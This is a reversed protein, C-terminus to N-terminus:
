CALIDPAKEIGLILGTESFAIEVFDGQDVNLTLANNAALESLLSASLAFSRDDCTKLEWSDGIKAILATRKHHISMTIQSQALENKAAQYKQNISNRESQSSLQEREIQVVRHTVHTEDFTLTQQILLGLALLGICATVFNFQKGFRPWGSHKEQQTKSHELATKRISEPTKVSRKRKQYLSDLKRDENSM